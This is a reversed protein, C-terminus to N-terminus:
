KETENEKTQRTFAKSNKEVRESSAETSTFFTLLFARHKHKCKKDMLAIVM